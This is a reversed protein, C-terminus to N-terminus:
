DSSRTMIIIIMLITLIILLTIITIIIIAVEWGEIVQGPQKTMMMPNVLDKHYKM